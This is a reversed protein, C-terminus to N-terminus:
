YALFEPATVMAVCVGFWGDNPDGSEAVIDDYLARLEVLGDMSNGTVQLGHLKLRLYRLNANIDTERLIIRDAPATTGADHLIAKECVDGAMDDMFKLFLPTPDLNNVTSQIYDAEGLTRSLQDFGVGEAARGSPVTWTIGGFIEPISRRLEDVSLRRAVKGEGETRTVPDVSGPGRGDPSTDTWHDVFMPDINPANNPSSADCAAAAAASVFAFITRHILKM